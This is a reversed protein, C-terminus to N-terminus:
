GAAACTQLAQDRADGEPLSKKVITECVERTAKKLEEPDGSRVKDCIAKVDDKLDASVQPNDDVSKKCTAVAADLQDDTASNGTSTTGTEPTTTTAATAAPADNSSSDSNDNGGGCGAFAATLMLIAAMPGLKRIM